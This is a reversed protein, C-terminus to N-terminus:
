LGGDVTWAGYGRDNRLAFTRKETQGDARELTCRIFVGPFQGSTFPKEHSRLRCRKLPELTRLHYAGFFVKLANVDWAQLADIGKLLAQEADINRFADYPLTSAEM